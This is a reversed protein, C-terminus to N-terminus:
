ENYTGILVEGLEPLLLLGLGHAEQQAHACPLVALLGVYVAARARSARLLCSLEAVLGLLAIDNVAHADAPTAALLLNRLTLFWKVVM